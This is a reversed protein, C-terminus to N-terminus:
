RASRRQPTSQQRRKAGRARRRKPAFKAQARRVAQDRAQESHAPSCYRKRKYIVFPRGCAPGNDGPRFQCRGLRGLGVTGLLTIAAACLADGLPASFLPRVVITLRPVTGAHRWVLGGSQARVVGRGLMWVHERRTCGVHGTKSAPGMTVQHEVPQVVAAAFLERVARRAAGVALKAGWPPIVHWQGGTAASVLEVAAPLTEEVAGESYAFATLWALHQAPTRGIDQRVLGEDPPGLFAEDLTWRAARKRLVPRAASPTGGKKGPQGVPRYAM